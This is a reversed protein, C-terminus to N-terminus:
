CADGEAGTAGSTTSIYDDVMSMLITVLADVGVTERFAPDLWQHLTGLRSAHFVWAFSQARGYDARLSEPMRAVFSAIELQELNRIMQGVPHRSQRYRVYVLVCWPVKLVDDFGKRSGADIRARWAEPDESSGEDAPSAFAEGFLRVTFALREQPDDGMYKYIWARSVGAKRALEAVTVDDPSSRLLSTAM